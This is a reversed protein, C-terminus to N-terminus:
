TGQVSNESQGGQENAVFPRPPPLPHPRPLSATPPHPTPLLSPLTLHPPPSLSLSLSTVGMVTRLLLCARECTVREGGGRSGAELRLSTAAAGVHDESRREKRGGRRPRERTGIGHHTRWGGVVDVGKGVVRVEGGRGGRGLVVVVGVVAEAAAAATM